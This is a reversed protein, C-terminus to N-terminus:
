RLSRRGCRRRRRPRCRRCRVAPPNCRSRPCGSKCCWVVVRWRLVGSCGGCGRLVGPGKERSSLWVGDVVVSRVAACCVRLVRVGVWRRRGPVPRRESCNRPADSNTVAVVCREVVPPRNLPQKQTHRLVISADPDIVLGPLVRGAARAAPFPDGTLANRRSSRVHRSGVRRCGVARRRPPRTAALM